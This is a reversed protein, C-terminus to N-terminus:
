DATVHIQLRFAGSLTPCRCTPALCCSTKGVFYCQVSCCSDLPNKVSGKHVLFEDGDERCTCVPTHHQRFCNPRANGASCPPCTKTECTARWQCLAAYLRATNTTTSFFCATGVAARSRESSASHGNLNSTPVPPELKSVHAGDSSVLPGLRTAACFVCKQSCM